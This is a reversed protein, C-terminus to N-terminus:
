ASAGEWLPTREIIGLEAALREVAQQDNNARAVEIDRTIEQLREIKEHLRPIQDEEVTDSTVMDIVVIKDHIESGIRHVRDEAQKNDVMSWSRQLFVIVGARTLTLGVGGAKLTMLMVRAHGNQFDDVAAQRQQDTLGGIVMRYTIGKKELRAAALEILQRSEAAVVVADSGLEDLIDELVDLKPSPESMRIQGDPLIEVYASAFQSKRVYQALANTAIVVGGEDLQTIMSSELERYAKAQKPGMEVYRVQRVKRPLFPLVLDKPMRRFRPDLISYFEDKTDPRVGVIDLGGFLNWSQLCYRDVFASKRPFDQPAVGHMLSWLEAPQNAIPTGTLSFRYRVSDGHQVAWVARTQKSKPDKMRHAEDVIVSKFEFGNLEKSLKESATLHISGYGSVRSHLRVAEWNIVIAVREGNKIAEHAEEFRKRKSAAGGSIVIVRTSPAWRSWEKEWTLKMSNPCVVCVPFADELQEVATISQVTKGTGMEDALLAQGAVKLFAVGARQFPYLHELGPAETATRLELAPRIRRTLEDHAWANLRPGIQLENAFIGRLAKCTSWSLPYHWAGEEWRHGPITKYLDILRPTTDYLAIRGDTTLEAAPM